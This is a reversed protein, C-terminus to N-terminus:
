LFHPSEILYQLSTDDGKQNPETGKRGEEEAIACSFLEGLVWVLRGEKPYKLQGEVCDNQESTEGEDADPPM